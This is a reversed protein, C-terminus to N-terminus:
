KLDPSIETVAMGSSVKRAGGIILRDGPGLGSTVIVGTGSFGGTTIAARRACGNEVLWVYPGDAGTRVASAPIVITESTGPSAALRVKTVMGPMLGAPDSTPVLTCEYCHSLPSASIGKRSVRCDITKDGLAPVTLAAHTGIAIDGIESEPVPITIELSKIDVIKVLPEAPGVEIGEDVHIESVVGDYPAKVTCDSLAQRAARVSAEAESLQTRIEVMKVEPVSGSAYVQSLRDYGDQAQALKAEAAELTANVSESRIVAITEDKRVSQGETVQLDTLTGAFRSSLLTSKSPRVTGVYGKADSSFTATVTVTEVNIDREAPIAANRVCGPLIAAATVLAAARMAKFSRMTRINQGAM